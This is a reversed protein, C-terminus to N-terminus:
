SYVSVTAVYYERQIRLRLRMMECSFQEYAVQYDKIDFLLARSRAGLLSRYGLPMIECSFQEDAAEFSRYGLIRASSTSVLATVEVGELSSPTPIDHLRSIFSHFLM